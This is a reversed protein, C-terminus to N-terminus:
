VLDVIQWQAQIDAEIYRQTTRISAHGALTQVDLLSGGVTSIKRAANTIFTRRGSHSSCGQYGLDRFWRFFLNV